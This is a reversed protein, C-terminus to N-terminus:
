GSRLRGAGAGADRRDHPARSRARRAAGRRRPRAARPRSGLEHGRAPDGRAAGRGPRLGRGADGAVVAVRGFGFALAVAAAVLSRCELRRLLLFLLAAASAASVASLLNIRWALNGLPLQSFLWSLLLYVPYGPPHPTGLIKGLFQFKPTDGIGNLGPYLTRVYVALALAGVGAALLRARGGRRGPPNM